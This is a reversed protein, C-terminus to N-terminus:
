SSIFLSATMFDKKPFDAQLIDNSILNHARCRTRMQRSSDTEKKKKKKCILSNLICYLQKSFLKGTMFYISKASTIILVKM